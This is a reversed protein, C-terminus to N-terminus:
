FIVFSVYMISSLSMDFNELVFTLQSLSVIGEPVQYSLFSKVIPPCSTVTPSSNNLIPPMTPITM